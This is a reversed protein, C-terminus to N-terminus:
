PGTVDPDACWGGPSTAGGIEAPCPRRELAALVRSVYEAAARAGAVTFHVGDSVFWDPRDASYRRWDALVLEPAGGAVAAGVLAANNAVFTAANSVSSPSVYGVNERYTLWVVRDIGKTRAAAIVAEVAVPFWTASDNYGTAIVVTSYRGPTVTSLDAVATLPAYGERGRCSSGILRRCSELRADFDAGQLYGLAGNWRIGAFSSDGILLVESRENSMPNAPRPLTAPVPTGTFWGAVDVVVHIGGYSSFGVGRESVRTVTLAAVPRRWRYNLSSVEPVATGAAFVSLFGAKTSEVATVNAVVASAGSPAIQREVSGNPHIPDLSSRSDWVRSPAQPVFLGTTSVPATDGTFWGWVDVLVDTTMSRHVVLGDASVPLFVASARTTDLRDTNVVSANPRATGAPFATLFGPEAANVATVTVALATAGAPVGRPLAVSLDADGRRGDRRTDVLRTPDTPVFRGSSAGGSADVFAATVDVVLAADASLYVDIAGSSGLQVVASNAVTNGPAFNLNSATPRGPGAPWATAFGTGRAEVAIMGIAVAAADLPVGCRGAVQIRWTSADLRGRDPTHRADFLRCPQVPRLVTGPPAAQVRSGGSVM